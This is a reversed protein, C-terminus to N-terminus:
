LVSRYSPHKVLHKSPAMCKTDIKVTSKIRRGRIASGRDGSGERPGPVLSFGPGGGKGPFFMDTIWTRKKATWIVYFILFHNLISEM